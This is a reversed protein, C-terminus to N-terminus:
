IVSEGEKGDKGQGREGIKAHTSPTTSSPSVNITVSIVIREFVYVYSLPLSLACAPSYIVKKGWEGENGAAM